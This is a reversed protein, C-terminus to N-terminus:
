IRCTPLPSALQPALSGRPPAVARGLDLGPQQLAGLLRFRGASLGGPASFGQSGEPVALATGVLSALGRGAEYLQRWLSCAPAKSHTTWM